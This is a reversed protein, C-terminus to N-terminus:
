RRQISFDTGISGGVYFGTYGNGFTPKEPLKAPKQKPEASPKCPPAPAALTGAPARASSTTCDQAVTPSVLAAASLTAFVLRKM